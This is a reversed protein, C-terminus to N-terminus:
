TYMFVIQNMVEIYFPAAAAAHSSIPPPFEPTMQVVRTYDNRGVGREAIDCYRISSEFHHNSLSVLSATCPFSHNDDDGVVVTSVPYM